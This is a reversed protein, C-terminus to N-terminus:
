NNSNFPLANNIAPYFDNLYNVVTNTASAIEEGASLNVTLRVFAADTPRLLMSNMMLDWKLSFESRVIGSRTEFWYFM